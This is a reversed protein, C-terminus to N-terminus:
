LRNVEKTGEGSKTGTIVVNRKEDYSVISDDLFGVDALKRLYRIDWGKICEPLKGLQQLKSILAKKDNVNLTRTTKMTVSGAEYKFSKDNSDWREVLDNKLYQMYTELNHIREKYVSEHMQLQQESDEIQSKYKQIDPNNIMQEQILKKKHEAVLYDEINIEKWNSM